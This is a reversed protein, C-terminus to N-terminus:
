AADLLRDVVDADVRVVVSASYGNGTTVSVRAAGPSIGAIRAREGLSVVSLVETDSSSWVIPQELRVGGGARIRLVTTGNVRVAPRSPEIAITTEGPAPADRSPGHMTFSSCGYQALALTLLASAAFGVLVRKPGNQPARNRRVARRMMQPTVLWRALCCLGHSSEDWRM